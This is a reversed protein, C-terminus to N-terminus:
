YAAANAAARRGGDDGKAMCEAIFWGIWERMGVEWESMSTLFRLRPRVLCVNLGGDLDDM